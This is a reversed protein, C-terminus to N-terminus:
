IREAIPPGTTCTHTHSLTRASDDRTARVCRLKRRHRRVLARGRTRCLFLAMLEGPQVCVCVCLLSLSKWRDHIYTCTHTITNTHTHKNKETDTYMLDTKRVGERVRAALIHTGCASSRWAM